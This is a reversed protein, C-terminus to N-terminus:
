FNYNVWLKHSIAYGVPIQHIQEVPISNNRRVGFRRRLICIRVGRLWPPPIYNVDQLLRNLCDISTLQWLAFVHIEKCYWGALRPPKRHAAWSIPCGVQDTWIVKYSDINQINLYKFSFNGIKLFSIITTTSISNLTTKELTRKGM